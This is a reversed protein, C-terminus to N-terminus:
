KGRLVITGMLAAVIGILVYGIGKMAFLTDIVTAVGWTTLFFGTGTMAISIGITFLNNRSKNIGNAIGDGIADSEFRKTESLGQIVSKSLGLLFELTDKM